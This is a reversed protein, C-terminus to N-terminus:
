KKSKSTTKRRFNRKKVPASKLLARCEAETLKTPDTDKAIRVNKKGDTIYAGYPGNLVKIGSPFENIHKAADKALKEEYLEQAEALTINHPDLPKISVFTTGVQVYPGFRGINAKIDQGDSSTGVLRPLKLMVLAQELTVTDITTDAPMPAFAPKKSEDATDGRQLMPGYRGFRAFIPEGTKPDNGLERAQSVEQRSIDASQEILPHFAKYFTSIMSEWKQKGDAINDFDQEVHATFDFDVISPFYKVLFDTTVEAIATPVLKARDAGVIVSTTNETVSDKVLELEIINRENGQLDLKEVYGRTQITSITPAYTSPRGIGLEELKRVLTAESYRAPPRSFVQTAKMKELDLIDGVAVDPLLTDDKTGGYVKMFGDFRLIEGKAIFLDKQNSIQISVDTREIQAPSMQSAIARQWILKYLKRQGEDEGASLRHMETPRIAEHAEQASQNKTRFQRLKHYQDGYSEKVYQEIAGLALSSLITSDTRMYTIHGAEYLRQAITMTQRVGFGLRRSAEQQLTSTTFPPGPNRAGPKKSIDSITFIADAAKELWLKADEKTDIKTALEAPLETGKTLFLATIKFSSQADFSRIDREREVILRVAVSQVRGASLGTRVKKWLVPSLEYGVLRDLVRRAQQADVLKVDVTRPNKIAAEIASKTIEHFVIRKTKTPDLKLAHALHWAIAEGERDEDSALWVESGSAAKKLESVIKKKDSSVEYHPAFGHEIDINLGKKPLDRIHGFSSKVVYDKGLFKEITKAKAPSEVIVLNKAM